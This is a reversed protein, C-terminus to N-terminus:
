FSSDGSASVTLHFTCAEQGGAMHSSRRPAADLLQAILTIDVKCLQAHAQAVVRYPCNAIRLSYGDDNKQYNAMYGKDNLFSVVRRFRAEWGEGPVAPPCEGALQNAINCLVEDLEQPELRKKIEGLMLTALVDYNKPFYQAAAEALAYVYQPRGPTARRRIVPAKILGEERLTDLHHRITASTLQLEESLDEVTTEGREQLIRLIHERTVQM